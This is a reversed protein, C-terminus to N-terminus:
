LPQKALIAHAGLGLLCPISAAHGVCRLYINEIKEPAIYEGQSLKFINKKRDIIKLRGGPLWMGVDGTHLWGDKDLVEATQQPDKYYGQFITPGRACVEGLMCACVAGGFSCIAAQVLWPDAHPHFCKDIQAGLWNEAAHFSFPYLCCLRVAIFAVYDGVSMMWRPYPQDTNYYNMEPIDILKIEASPMPAGVHGAGFLWSELGM